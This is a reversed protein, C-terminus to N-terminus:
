ARDTWLILDCTQVQLDELSGERTLIAFGLGLATVTFREGPHIFRFEANQTRAVINERCATVESGILLPTPM